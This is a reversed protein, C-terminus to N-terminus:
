VGGPLRDPGSIGLANDMERNTEKNDRFCLRPGSVIVRRFDEHRLLTLMNSIMHAFDAYGCRSCWAHTSFWGPKVLLFDCFRTRTGIDTACAHYDGGFFPMKQHGHKRHLGLEVKGFEERHGGRHTCGSGTVCPVTFHLKLGTRFRFTCGRWLGSFLRLRAVIRFLLNPSGLPM